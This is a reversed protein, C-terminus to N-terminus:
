NIKSAWIEKEINKKEQFNDTDKQEIKVVENQKSLNEDPTNGFLIFFLTFSGIVILTM